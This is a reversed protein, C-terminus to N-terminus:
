ENKPITVRHQRRAFKKSPKAVPEDIHTHSLSSSVPPRGGGLNTPNAPSVVRPAPPARVLDQPNSAGPVTLSQPNGRNTLDMPNSPNVGPAYGGVGQASALGGSLVVMTLGVLAALTKTSIKM